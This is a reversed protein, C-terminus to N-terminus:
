LKSLFKHRLERRLIKGSASKPISDTFIVRRLRKFPAVQKAIFDKIEEGTVSSSSSRVIYAIPVEGAEADPSGIVAADEIEPHALLLEELEAPAVQFGKCKILEKIRDVVYLRGENDFYGLDGTHLWGQDDITERTAMENKFYGEMINPGRVWIEGKQLPPLPQMTELNMILAEIGPDLFGTSGSHHSRIRTDDLSIAACTETMGYGQYLVAQPFNKACEYLVDNGLPAAGSAIERLSSIDLKKVLEQQKTLAIVVPPVAYLHTVKHKEIARLMKEMEYRVMVVVTNGRQLQAFLLSSLGFVHFMPLFCLFVNKIEPYAEQDSTMMMASAIFNRHTLVVGKGTGTTGSSYLIAAADTQAISPLALDLLSLNSSSEVLDSYHYWTSSNSTSPSYMPDKATSLMICPLNFHKIKDYLEHITIIFKPNSDKVQKSLETITYQPNATTAIAGIAVVAFFAVPFRISNPSLILVVDNKSINLNLLAHSLKFVQTKLDSFTLTQATEADILAPFHSISSIKRFLFQIMSYNPDQPLSIPPRPSRYIGDKGYILPSPM